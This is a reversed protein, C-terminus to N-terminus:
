IGSGDDGGSDTSDLFAQIDETDASLASQEQSLQDDPIGYQEADGPAMADDFAQQSADVPYGQDDVYYGPQPAGPYQGYQDYYGGYYPDNPSPYYGSNGPGPPYYGGPPIYNGNQDYYGGSSNTPSFNNQGAPPDFINPGQVLPTIGTKAQATDYILCLMSQGFGEPDKDLIRWWGTDNAQSQQRFADVASSDLSGDDRVMKPLGYMQLRAATLFNLDLWGQGPLTSPANSQDTFDAGDARYIDAPMVTWSQNETGPLYFRLFLYSLHPTHDAWNLDWAWDWWDQGGQGNDVTGKAVAKTTDMTTAPFNYFEPIGMKAYKDDDYMGRAAGTVRYFWNGSKDQYFGYGGWKPNNLDNRNRGAYLRGIDVMTDGFNGGGAGMNAWRGIPGTGNPWSGDKNPGVPSETSTINMAPLYYKAMAPSGDPYHAPIPDGQNNISWEQVQADCVWANGNPTYQSDPTNDEPTDGGDQYSTSNPDSTPDYGEDGPNLGNADSGMLATQIHDAYIGSDDIIGLPVGDVYMQDDGPSPTDEFHEMETPFANPDFSDYADITLYNRLARAAQPHLMLLPDVNGVEDHGRTPFIIKVGPTIEHVHNGMCGMGSMKRYQMTQAQASKAAGGPSKNTQMTQAQNKKQLALAAAKQKALLAAASQKSQATKTKSPKKKWLGAKKEVSRLGPRLKRAFKPRKKPAGKLGKASPTAGM